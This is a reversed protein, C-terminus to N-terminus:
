SSTSTSRVAEPMPPSSRCTSRPRSAPCSSRPREAADKLRQLALPDKRLDIGQEEPVGRGSTSSASTSTRAASSPTATPRWCRSSSRATSTRRDRHDVRRLHRQRPRVAIKRDRRRGQRPRLGAAATPENIIRKVDLGAIRGADQDGPAPQRQLLGARHDGGRDGTEGLFAEATKKM